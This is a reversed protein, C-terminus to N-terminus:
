ENATEAKKEQLAAAGEDKQIMNKWSWIDADPINTRIQIVVAEISSYTSVACTLAMHVSGTGITFAFPILFVAVGLAKGSASHIFYMKGFRFLAIVMSIIHVILTAAFWKVSWLPIKRSVIMVKMMGTYMLIDGTTDLIAGTTDTSNTRRAIPGDLLDSAACILYVTIFLGTLENSLFLLPSLIIRVSTIINALHKKM